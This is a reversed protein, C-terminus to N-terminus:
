LNFPPQTARWLPVEISAFSNISVPFRYVGAGTKSYGCMLLRFDAGSDCSDCDFKFAGFNAFKNINPTAEKFILNMRRVMCPWIHGSMVM